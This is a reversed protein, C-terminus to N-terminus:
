RPFARARIGAPAKGARRRRTEARKADAIFTAWARQHSPPLKGYLVAAEPDDKFVAELEEPVQLPRPVPDLELAVEVADGRELGAPERFSRPLPVRLRGEGRSATGRFAHGSVTGRVAMPGPGWAKAVAPPVVIFTWSRYPRKGGAVLTTQFRHM